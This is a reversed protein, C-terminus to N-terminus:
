PADAAAASVRKRARCAFHEIANPDGGGTYFPLDPYACLPRVLGTAANLAPIRNPPAGHAVWADLPTLMDFRDPGPGGGCHYIGPVLFLSVARASRGMAKRVAAYYQLTGLPSPGPDNLGHWLILKGGRALFARLDPNAAEYDRRYPSASIAKEVGEPTLSMIDLDLDPKRYILYPIARAGTTANSGLPARPAGISRGVWDLEGGRMLPWAAVAGDQTTLGAYLKRVTAVQKATLCQPPSQGARCLLAAPDWRCARPDTVIGDKLGDDLDCSALVANNVLTAQAALLNSEPDAHFFQTRFLASTQVRFDYVPAGAIIGDYDQPYRQAEILGQRGGTSCGQFYASEIPRGYYLAATRKGSVTMEHVSRYAFDETAAANLVGPSTLSWTLDTADASPHGTDTQATAYGQKLGEAATEIRLNGAWGGGGLGLFKGNWVTPLRFVVGIRSGAAPTLTATVECFAPLGTKPDAPRDQASLVQAGPLLGQAAMQNCARGNAWAKNAPATAVIGAAALILLMSRYLAKVTEGRAPQNM